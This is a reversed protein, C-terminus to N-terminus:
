PPVALSQSTAHAALAAADTSDTESLFQVMSDPHPTVEGCNWGTVPVGREKALRKEFQTLEGMFDLNPSISPRRSKVLSYADFLSMGEHQMLYAIAFSPSRSIGAVCHVLIRGGAQKCSNIFAFAEDFHSVINQNWSDRIPICCYQVGPFDPSERTTLNLVHTFKLRAVIERSSSHGEAGVYLFDLIQSPELDKGHHRAIPTTPTTGCKDALSKLSLPRSGKQAAVEVIDYKAQMEEFGGQLFYCTTDAGLLSHIVVHLPNKNNFQAGVSHTCADYVVVIHDGSQQLRAFRGKEGEEIVIKDVGLKKQLIRRLLISSLQVCSAGRIHSLVYESYPRVDVISLAPHDAEIYKMLTECTIPKANFGGSAM